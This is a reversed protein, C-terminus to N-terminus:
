KNVKKKLSQALNKFEAHEGDLIYYLIERYLKDYLDLLALEGLDSVNRKNADNGHRIYYNNLVFSLDSNKAINLRPEIYNALRHLIKRKEIVNDKASYHSYGLVELALKEDDPLILDAVTTVVEDDPVVIKGKEELLIIKQNTKKLVAVINQNVIEEGGTYKFRGHNSPLEDFVFLIVEILLDLDDLILGFSPEPVELFNLFNEYSTISGRKKFNLFESKLLSTFNDPYGYSDKIIQSFHFLQWLEEYEQQIDVEKTELIDWINKRGVM